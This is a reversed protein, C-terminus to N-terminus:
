SQRVLSSTTSSIGSIVQSFLALSVAHDFSKLLLSTGAGQALGADTFPDHRETLAPQMRYPSPLLEGKLVGVPNEPTTPASPVSSDFQQASGLAGSLISMFDGAPSPAPPAQGFTGIGIEPLPAPPPPQFQALPAAVNIPETSM